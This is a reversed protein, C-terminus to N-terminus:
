TTKKLYEKHTDHDGSAFGGAMALLTCEFGVADNDVYTIDGLENLKANPCVTRQKVGDKLAIEAVFVGSKHEDNNVRVTMGTTLDGSVNGDGYVFKKVNVNLFEILTFKFTDSHNSEVSLVTDGGWAHIEDTDHTNSNVFGEESVYGLPLFADDLATIADTPLTTGAPAWYLAGSPNPKGASVNSVTNAM